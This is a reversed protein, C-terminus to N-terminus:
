TTYQSNFRVYEPTLDCTLVTASSRGAGVDIGIEVEPRSMAAAAQGRDFVTAVGFRCVTIGACTISVRRPDLDVGANGLAMIIRGWNPDAGHIAARVLLSTAVARAMREAAEESAAGHVTVAAVRTAGEGDAVVQEALDACVAQVARGLTAASPPTRALGSALIAATDSTSRDGDVSVRNFSTDVGRTLLNGLIRHQVPADTTLVVLLTAMAPEIMGVGKAMGGITCSGQEDSVRYAVQKTRTDTTLMAEAATAGGDVTVGAALDPLAAEIREIPLPVGIVGTSMVLVDTSATGTAAAAGEAIRRNHEDGDPTCVNANGSNVVVVQARGDAAHQETLTCSPAKVQNTTTVVAVSAVEDAVLLALDPKGSPKVGTALGGARFGPAATVGGPVPELGGRDAPGWGPFPSM